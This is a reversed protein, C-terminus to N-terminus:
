LEKILNYEKRRGLKDYVKLLREKVDKKDEDSIKMRILKEYLQATKGLTGQKEFDEGVKKFYELYEKYLERRDKENAETIAKKFANAADEFRMARVYCKSEKLYNDQQERFAVSNIAANKFANAADVFMSKDLYIRALRLYAYKRLDIPPFLKIFRNLHDIQVFDGKGELFEDIENKRSNKTLM